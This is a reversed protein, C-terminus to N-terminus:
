EVGVSMEPLEGDHSNLVLALEVNGGDFEFAEGNVDWGVRM